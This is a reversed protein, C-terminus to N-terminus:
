SYPTHAGGSLDCLDPALGVVESNVAVVSSRKEIKFFVIKTKLVHKYNKVASANYSV